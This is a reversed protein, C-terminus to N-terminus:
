LLEFEKCFVLEICAPDEYLARRHQGTPWGHVCGDRQRDLHVCDECCFRLEFRQM